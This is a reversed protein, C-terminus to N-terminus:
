APIVTFQIETIKKQLKNYDDEVPLPGLIPQMYDIFKQKVTLNAFDFLDDNLRKYHNEGVMDALTNDEIKIENNEYSPRIITGSYGWKNRKILDIAHAGLQLSFKKDVEILEATELINGPYLARSEIKLERKLYDAVALCIFFSRKTDFHDSQTDALGELCCDFKAHQSVVVLAYNGNERYKKETLELFKLCNTEREAPVIIDAGGYIGAASLWGADYGPAEVVFIRSLTYAAHTKIKQLYDAFAASASPYGPTWYTGSLDNDVTKPVGVTPLNEQRALVEATHLTDNGGVAVIADLGLRKVTALIQNVGGETKLPNFRSSRLFDGVRDNIQKTDFHTLDITKGDAMLSYWGYLGGLIQWGEKQASEIAGALLCNLAPSLGGGTFILIKKTKVM